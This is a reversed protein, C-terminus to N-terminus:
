TVGCEGLAGGLASVGSGMASEVSEPRGESDGVEWWVADQFFLVAQVYGSGLLLKVRRSGGIVLFSESASEGAARVALVPGSPM